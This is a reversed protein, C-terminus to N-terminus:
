AVKYKSIRWKEASIKANASNVFVKEYKINDEIYEIFLTTRVIGDVAKLWERMICTVEAGKPITFTTEQRTLTTVQFDATFARNLTGIFRYEKFGRENYYDSYMFPKTEKFIKM